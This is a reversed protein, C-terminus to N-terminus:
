HTLLKEIETKNQLYQNMYKEYEESTLNHTNLIELLIM